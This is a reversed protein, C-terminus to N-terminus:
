VHLYGLHERYTRPAGNCAVRDIAARQGAVVVPRDAQGPPVDWGSASRSLRLRAGAELSRRLEAFSLTVLDGRKQKMSIYELATRWAASVVPRGGAVTLCDGAAPHRRCCLYVHGLLLGSSACLRDVLPPALELAPHQLLLTDFIWPSRENCGFSTGNGGYLVMPGARLKRLARRTGAAARWGDRGLPRRRIASAPGDGIVNKLSRAALRASPMRSLAAALDLALDAEGRPSWISLDRFPNKCVDFYSWYNTIGFDNLFAVLPTGDPLRGTRSFLYSGTGHDIWTVPGYRDMGKARRFCEPVSPAEVRPGFGHFAIETGQEHLRDVLKAYAPTDLGPENKARKPQSRPFVSKTFRFETRGFVEVLPELNAATDFDAHDTLCIAARAGGPYPEVWLCESESELRDCSLELRLSRDLPALKGEGKLSLGCRAHDLLSIRIEVGEARKCILFDGGWRATVQFLGQSTSVVVFRGVPFPPRATSLLPLLRRDASLSWAKRCPILLTVAARVVPEGSAEVRLLYTAHWRNGNLKEPRLRLTRSELECEARFDLHLRDDM